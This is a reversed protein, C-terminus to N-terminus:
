KNLPQKQWCNLPQLFSQLEYVVYISPYLSDFFCYHTFSRTKRLGVAYLIPYIKKPKFQVNM